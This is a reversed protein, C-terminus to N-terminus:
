RHEHQHDGVGQGTQPQQERRLPWRLRPGSRRPVPDSRDGLSVALGSLARTLRANPASEALTTGEIVARDCAGPDDPLWGVRRTGAARGLTDAIEERSWGLDSRVRNVVVVPDAGPVATALDSLGRILRSLGVPDARGVVVIVDARTLVELTAGNRRPASTDYSIEEDLELSFGCDVVTVDVLARAAVLVARVLASKAEVWRDARPLGTLVRLSPDIQRCCSALTTPGLRGRNAERTAALLGSSEDLLGLMQALAGGYVDADVVLVSRDTRALASGLGLAVTSRGPAGSPGWVAILRGGGPIVSRDATPPASRSRSGAVSVVAEVVSAPDDVSVVVSVGLARLLAEAADDPGAVVGVVSVGEDALSVVAQADLGGLPEAVVAVDAQRSSATALLDALDVCRRVVHVDDHDLTALLRPEFRASGVAVLVGTTM